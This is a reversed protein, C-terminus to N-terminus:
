NGNIPLPHPQVPAANNSPAAVTTTSTGHILDTIEAKGSSLTDMISGFLSQSVAAFHQDQADKQDTPNLLAYMDHQFSNFWVLGVLVVVVITCGLTVLERIHSPQQRIHHVLKKM